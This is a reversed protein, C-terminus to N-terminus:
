EFTFPFNSQRISVPFSSTTRPFSPETENGVCNWSYLRRDDKSVVGNPMSSHINEDFNRRGISTIKEDEFTIKIV